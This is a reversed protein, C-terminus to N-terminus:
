IVEFVGMMGADEHGLIHCHMMYMFDTGAGSGANSGSSYAREDFQVLFVIPSTTNASQTTTSSDVEFVDKWGQMEDPVTTNGGISKIMAHCGHLHFPHRGGTITWEETYGATTQTSTSVFNATSMNFTVDSTTPSSSTSRASWFPDTGGKLD